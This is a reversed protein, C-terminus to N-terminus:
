FVIVLSSIGKVMGSYFFGLGPTMLMVLCSCMLVWATDSKDM